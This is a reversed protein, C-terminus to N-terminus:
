AKSVEQYHSSHSVVPSETSTTVGSYWEIHERDSASLHEEDENQLNTRDTHFGEHLPALVLGGGGGLSASQTRSRHDPASSRRRTLVGFEDASVGPGPTTPTPTPGAGSHRAVSSTTSPPSRSPRGSQPNILFPGHNARSAIEEPGMAWIADEVARSPLAM